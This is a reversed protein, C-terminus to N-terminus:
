QGQCCRDKKTRLRMRTYYIILFITLYFVPLVFNTLGCGGKVWFPKRSHGNRLPRKNVSAVDGKDLLLTFKPNM